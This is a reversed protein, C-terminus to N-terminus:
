ASEREASHRMPTPRHPLLSVFAASARFEVNSPVREEARRVLRASDFDMPSNCDPEIVVEGTPACAPLNRQGRGSVTRYLPSAV